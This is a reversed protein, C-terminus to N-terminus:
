VPLLIMCKLNHTIRIDENSLHMIAAEAIITGRLIPIWTPDIGMTITGLFVQLGPPDRIVTIQVM